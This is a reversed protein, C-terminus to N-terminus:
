MAGLVRTSFALRLDSDIVMLCAMVGVAIAALVTGRTPKLWAARDDVAAM